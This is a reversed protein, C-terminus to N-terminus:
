SPEVVRDAWERLRSLAARETRSIRDDVGLEDSEFANCVVVSASSCYDILETTRNTDAQLPITADNVFVADPDDPAASIVRAAREANTRALAIAEERTGSETRPARADIRGYYIEDPITTFRTLRGGLVRGDRELEPAFELVAVDAPGHDAVWRDLAAATHRTKGVNSPGVILTSGCLPVSSAM